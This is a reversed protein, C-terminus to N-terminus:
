RAHANGARNNYRRRGLMHLHPTRQESIPIDLACSFVADAAPFDLNADRAALWWRPTDQLGRASRYADLDAAFAASGQKPPPPLVVSMDPLEDAALYGHIRGPAYEAVHTPPPAACSSLVLAALLLLGGGRGQASPSSSM